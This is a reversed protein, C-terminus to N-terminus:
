YETMSIHILSLYIDTGLRVGDRMAVMVNKTPVIEYVAEVQAGLPVVGALLVLLPVFSPFGAAARNKVM